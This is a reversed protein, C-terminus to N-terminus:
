KEFKSKSSIDVFRDHHYFSKQNPSKYTSNFIINQGTVIKPDYTGPGPIFKKSGINLAASRGNNITPVSFSPTMTNVM